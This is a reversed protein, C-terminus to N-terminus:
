ALQHVITRLLIQKGLALLGSRILDPPSRSKQFSHPPLQSCLCSIPPQAARETLATPFAPGPALRVRYLVRGGLKLSHLSKYFWIFAEPYYYLYCCYWFLKEEGASERLNNLAEVLMCPALSLRQSLLNQCIFERRLVPLSSISSMVGRFGM